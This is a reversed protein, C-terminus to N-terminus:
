QNNLDLIQIVGQMNPNTQFVYSRGDSFKVAISAINRAELKSESLTSTRENSLSVSRIASLNQIAKMLDIKVKELAEADLRAEYEHVEGFGATNNRRDLESEYVKVDGMGATRSQGAELNVDIPFAQALVAQSAMSLGLISTSAIGLGLTVKKIVRTSQVSIKM